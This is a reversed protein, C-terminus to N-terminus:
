AGAATIDRTLRQARTSSAPYRWSNSIHWPQSRRLPLRQVAQPQQIPTLARPRANVQGNPRQGAYISPAALRAQRNAILYSIAIGSV